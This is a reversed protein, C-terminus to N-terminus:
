KPWWCSSSRSSGGDMLTRDAVPLDHERPDFGDINAYLTYFSYTNWLTLTFRRVVEDIADPSFRRAYWPSSV